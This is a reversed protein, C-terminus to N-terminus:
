MLTNLMGESHPRLKVRMGSTVIAIDDERRPSVKYAMIYEMENTDPIHVSILVENPNLAVKRYGVFFDRAMIVRTGDVSGVTFAANCGIFIPNLDSIPSNLGSISM